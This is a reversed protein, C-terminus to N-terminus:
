NSASAAHACDRTESLDHAQLSCNLQEASMTRECNDIFAAGLAAKMAERHQTADGAAEGDSSVRVDILHDRLTECRRRDVIEHRTCGGALAASVGVSLLLRIVSPRAKTPGAQRSRTKPREVSVIGGLDPADFSLGDVNENERSTMM